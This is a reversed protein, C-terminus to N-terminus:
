AKDLETNTTSTSYVIRLVMEAQEEIIQSLRWLAGERFNHPNSEALVSCVAKIKECCDEVDFTM